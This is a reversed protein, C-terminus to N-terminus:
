IEVSEPHDNAFVGGGWEIPRIELTMHAASIQRAFMAAEEISSFDAVYFGLFREKTDPYPGDVLVPKGGPTTAPKLTVANGSPMLRAVAFAGRKALEAQLSRHLDLLHEQDEDPMRDALGEPGYILISYKM